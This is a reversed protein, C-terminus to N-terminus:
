YSRWKMREFHPAIDRLDVELTSKKGTVSLRAGRLHFMTRGIRSRQIFFTENM